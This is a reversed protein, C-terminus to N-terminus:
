KLLSISNNPSLASYHSKFQRFIPYLPIRWLLFLDLIINLPPLYFTSIEKYINDELSLQLDHMLKTIKKSNIENNTFAAQIYRIHYFFSPKLCHCGRFKWLNEGLISKTNQWYQKRNNLNHFFENSYPWVTLGTKLFTQTGM